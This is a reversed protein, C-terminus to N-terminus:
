YPRSAGCSPRTGSLRTRGRPRDAEVEFLQTALGGSTSIGCCVLEAGHHILEVHNYMVLRAIPANSFQPPSLAGQPRALGAIGLGRVDAMWAEYGEDLQRLATEATGAFELDPSESTRPQFHLATPSGLCEILHALRWAITTVPNPHPLPEAYDMVFKSSGVSSPASGEGQRRLSWCGPVPEWFYEDDTLGDLRPRLRDRWHSDMQDVVEANWDIRM